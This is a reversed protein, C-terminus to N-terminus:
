GHPYARLGADDGRAPAVTCDRTATLPLSTAGDCPAAPLAGQGGQGGGPRTARKRAPPHQGRDAHLTGRLTARSLPTDGPDGPGTQGQAHGRAARCAADPGPSGGAGADGGERNMSRPRKVGLVPNHLVANRDCLYAYLSSLAALKRRITDNALGQSVLRDHWAIVHARTVHRFQEPQRLGAFAMFDAIDQRYARRTNANTLKAFWEIEPPVDALTLFRAPTLTSLPVLAPSMIESPTRPM